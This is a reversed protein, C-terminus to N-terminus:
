NNKRYFQACVNPVDAACERMRRMLHAKQRGHGSGGASRLQGAPRGAPGGGGGVCVRVCVCVYARVPDDMAAAAAAVAQVAARRSQAVAAEIASANKQESVLSRSRPTM